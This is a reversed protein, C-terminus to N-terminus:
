TPVAMRPVALLGFRWLLPGPDGCEMQSRLLVICVSSLLHLHSPVSLKCCRACPGCAVLSWRTDGGWREGPEVVRSRLCARSKGVGRNGLGPVGEGWSKKCTWSLHGPWADGTRQGSDGHALGDVAGQAVRDVLRKAGSKTQRVSCCTPPSGQGQQAMRAGPPDTRSVGVLVGPGSM